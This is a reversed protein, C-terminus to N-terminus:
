YQPKSNRVLRKGIPWRFLLEGDRIGALLRTKGSGNLGYLVTLGSELPIYNEGVPGDFERKTRVGLLEANKEVM